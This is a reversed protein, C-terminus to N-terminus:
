NFIKLNIKKNKALEIIKYITDTQKIDPTVFSFIGNCYKIFSTNRIHYFKGNFKKGFKYENPDHSNINFPEDYRLVETYYIGQSQIFKKIDNHMFNESIQCMEVDNNLKVKADYIVKKINSFNSYDNSVLIGIKFTRM